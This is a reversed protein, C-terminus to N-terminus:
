AREEDEAEVTVAGGISEDVARGDGVEGVKDPGPEAVIGNAFEKEATQLDNAATVTACPVVVTAHDIGADAMELFVITEGDERFPGAFKTWAMEGEFATGGANGMAEDLVASGERDEGEANVVFAGPGKAGPDLDDDSFWHSELGGVRIEAVDFLAEGGGEFVNAEIDGILFGVVESM